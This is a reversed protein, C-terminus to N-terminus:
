RNKSIDLKMTLGNESPNRYFNKREGIQKFEKKKYLSIAQANSKRVELIIYAAGSLKAEAILKEVLMSGLGRMRSSKLVGLNFLEIFKELRKEQQEETSNRNANKEVSVLEDKKASVSEDTISGGIKNEKTETEKKNFYSSGFENITILRALIYATVKSNKEIVYFISDKRSMEAEYDSVSWDALDCEIEIQKIFHLDSREAKRYSIEKNM